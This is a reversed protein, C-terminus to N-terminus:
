ENNDELMELQKVPYNLFLNEGAETLKYGPVGQFGLEEELYGNRVLKLFALRAAMKFNEYGMNELYNLIDIEEVPASSNTREVFVCELVKLEHSEFKNSM